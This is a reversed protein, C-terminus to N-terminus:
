MESIKWETVYFIFYFLSIWTFRKFTAFKIASIVDLWVIVRRNLKSRHKRPFHFSLRTPNIRWRRKLSSRCAYTHSHYWLMDHQGNFQCTEITCTKGYKLIPISEIKERTSILIEHMNFCHYTFTNIGQRNTVAVDAFQVATFLAISAPWEICPV